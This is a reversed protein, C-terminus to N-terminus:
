PVVTISQTESATRGLNDTVTLTVPYNGVATFTVTVVSGTQAGGPLGTWRYTAIQAGPGVTSASGDLLVSTNVRPGTPFVSFIAVPAEPLGVPVYKISSGSTGVPSIVTLTVKYLGPATFKHQIGQGSGTSGDGFDWQYDCSAGCRVKGAEPTLADFNVGEFPVPTEPTFTFSEDPVFPGALAIQVLRSNANQINGVKDGGVPTVYITVSSVALNLPPAIFTFRATGDNGTVVESTSLTGANAEVYLRQGPLPKGNSDFAKATITSMSSGDRPLVEPQASLSVTLGLESPGTIDPASQEGVTCGFAMTAILGLASLRAFTVLRLMNM